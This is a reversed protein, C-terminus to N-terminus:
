GAAARAQGARTAALDISAQLLRDAYADAVTRVWEPTVVVWWLFALGVLVVAAAADLPVISGSKVMHAVTAAIGIGAGVLGWTRLGLLNRRFGYNCNEEFVLPFRRADQTSQRLTSVCAEYAADAAHPDAAEAAASTPLSVAPLLTRLADHRLTLLQQNPADCFRLMRTTPAGGWSQWLGPEIAKGQERALNMALGAFGAWSLLAALAGQGEFGKPFWVLIAISFPLAVILAPQLRARVNYPVKPM